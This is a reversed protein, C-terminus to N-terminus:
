WSGVVVRREDNAGSQFAKSKCEYWSMAGGRDIGFRVIMRM